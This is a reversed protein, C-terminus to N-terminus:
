QKVGKALRLAYNWTNDDKVEKIVCGRKRPLKVHLNKIVLDCVM